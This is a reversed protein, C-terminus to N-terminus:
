LSDAEDTTVESDTDSEINDTESQEAPAPQPEPEASSEVIEPVDSTDAEPEDEDSGDGYVKRSLDELEKARIDNKRNQLNDQRIREEVERNIEDVYKKNRALAGLEFISFTTTQDLAAPKEDESDDSYDVKEAKDLRDNDDFPLDTFAEPNNLPDPAPKRRRKPKVLMIAVVSTLGLLSVGVLIYIVIHSTIPINGYYEVTATGNKIPLSSAGRGVYATEAGDVSVSVINEGGESSVFYTMPRNANGSNLMYGLNVYDSLETKVTLAMLGERSRYAMFNGSGFLKVLMDTIEKTTGECTVRCILNDEDETVTSDAGKKLFYSNAYTMGDHGDTKSYLFDTTRRFRANGLSTLYFNIGNIAYQIGDPVRVRVAGTDLSLKYVGEEWAGKTVWKGDEFVSGDGHTTSTPLSYAYELKPFGDDPGIFSFTDLSEEYAMGESLPTSANDRDGYFIDVSDTDLLMATLKVLNERDLGEYIVTYVMNSGEPTWGSYKADPSTNTLFYQEIAERDHLYTDNPLTFTFTRNFSGEKDNSTKISITSIRSGKCDNVEVASGTKYEQNAIRVLNSNYSFGMGSTAKEAATDRVIWAILESVDFDEAMRTGKTLTTNKQSLFVEANRGILSSIIEEYKEKNAFNLSLEFCFGEEQVGIYSFEAGDIDAAPSDEVLRQNLAEIDTSPPYIVTVTRTGAFSSNIDLVSKVAVSPKDCGTLGVCLSLCLIVILFIATLKKM